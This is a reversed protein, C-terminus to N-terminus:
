KQHIQSTKKTLLGSNVLEKLVTKFETDAKKAAQKANPNTSADINTASRGSLKGISNKISELPRSLTTVISQIRDM